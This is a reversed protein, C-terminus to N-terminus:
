PEDRKDGSKSQLAAKGWEMLRKKLPFTAASKAPPTQAIRVPPGPLTDQSKGSPMQSIQVVHARYEPYSRGPRPVTCPVEAKQEFHPFLGEPNM